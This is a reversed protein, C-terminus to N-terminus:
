KPESSTPIEATVVKMVTQGDENKSQFSTPTLYKHDYFKVIKNGNRVRFIDGPKLVDFYSEHWMNELFYDYQLSIDKAIEFSDDDVEPEKFEEKIENQVNINRDQRFKEIEKAEAEGKLEKELLKKFKNIKYNIRRAFNKKEKDLLILEKQIEESVSM